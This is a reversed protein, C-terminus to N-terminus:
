TIRLPRLDDFLMVQAQPVAKCTVYRGYCETKKKLKMAELHLMTIVAYYYLLM